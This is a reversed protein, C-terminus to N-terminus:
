KLCGDQACRTTHLHNFRGLSLLETFRVSQDAFFALFLQRYKAGTVQTFEGPKRSRFRYIGQVVFPKSSSLDVWSHKRYNGFIASLLFLFGKEAAVKIRGRLSFRPVSFMSGVAALIAFQFNKLKERRNKLSANLDDLLHLASFDTTNSKYPSGSLDNLSLPTWDGLFIYESRTRM